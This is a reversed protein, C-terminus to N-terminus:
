GSRDFGKSIHKEHAAVFFIKGGTGVTSGAVEDARIVVWEHKRYGTKGPSRNKRTSCDKSFKGLNLLNVNQPQSAMNPKQHRIQLHEKKEKQSRVPVNLIKLLYSLWYVKFDKSLLPSDKNVGLINFNTNIKRWFIKMQVTKPMKDRKTKPFLRIGAPFLANVKIYLVPSLWEVM